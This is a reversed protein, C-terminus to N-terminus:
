AQSTVIPEPEDMAIKPPVGSLAIAFATVTALPRTPLWPCTERAQGGDRPAALTALGGAAFARTPWASGDTSTRKRTVYARPSGMKFGFDYVVVITDMSLM